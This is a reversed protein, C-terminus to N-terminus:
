SMKEEKNNKMEGKSNAQYKESYKDGSSINLKPWSWDESRQANPWVDKHQYSSKTIQHNLQWEGEREGVEGVEGVKNEESHKKM